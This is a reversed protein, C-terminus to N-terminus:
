RAALARAAACARLSAREAGLKEAKRRDAAGQALARVKATSTEWWKKLEAPKLNYRCKQPTNVICPDGRGGLYVAARFVFSTSGGPLQRQYMGKLGPVPTPKTM